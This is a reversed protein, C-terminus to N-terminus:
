SAPQISVRAILVILASWLITAGFLHAVQLGTPTLLIADFFGLMYQAAVLLLLLASLGRNDWYASRQGARVLVWILFVSSLFAVGPHMWRWRVLWGSSPSFDNALASPLSAAPFLTNGLAALLGTVGVALIALLTITSGAPTIFRIEGRRCGQKRGLLHATLTLAALMLMTNALHMALLAPREPAQGQPTCVRLSLYSGLANEVLEFLVTATASIRALHKPGAKRWTWLLLTSTLLFSFAGLLRPIFEAAEGPPVIHQVMTANYLPWRDTCGGGSGTARMLAGLLIVAIFYCLVTWAFIRLARSPLPSSPSDAPM